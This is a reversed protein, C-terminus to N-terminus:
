TIRFLIVFYKMYIEIDHLFQSFQFSIRIAPKWSLSDCDVTISRASHLHGIKESRAAAADSPTSLTNKAEYGFGQDLSPV